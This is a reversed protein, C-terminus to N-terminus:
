GGASRFGSWADLDDRDPALGGTMDDILDMLEYAEGLLDQAEGPPAQSAREVLISVTVSFGDMVNLRRIMEQRSDILM